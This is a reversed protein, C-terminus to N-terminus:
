HSGTRLQARDNAMIRVLDNELTAAAAPGTSEGTLVSHLADTYAKSVAEYNAGAVTSPRSVIESGGSEGAKYWWPYIERM